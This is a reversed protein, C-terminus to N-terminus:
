KAKTGKRRRLRRDKKAWQRKSHLQQLETTCFFRDKRPPYFVRNCHPCVRWGLGLTDRAFFQWIAGWLSMTRLSLAFAPKRDKEIRHWWPRCDAAAHRNIEAEVTTLAIERSPGVNGPRKLWDRFKKRDVTGPFDAWGEIRPDKAPDLLVLGFRNIEDLADVLDAWARSINIPGIGLCAEWLKAIAVYRRHRAWFHDLNLWRLNSEWLFAAEPLRSPEELSLPGFRQLFEVAGLYDGSELARFATHPSQSADLNARAAEYAVDPDYLDLAGEGEEFRVCPVCGGAESEIWKFSGIASPRMMGAVQEDRRWGASEAPLSEVRRHARWWALTQPEIQVRFWQTSLKPLM